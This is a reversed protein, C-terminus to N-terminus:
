FRAAQEARWSIGAESAQSAGDPTAVILYAAMRSIYLFDAVAFYVLSVAIVWATYGRPATAMLGSPLVCLVFAIALVVLRVVGFILSIGGLEGGQRRALRLAQGTSKLFGDGSQLCCLGAV